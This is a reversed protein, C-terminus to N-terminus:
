MGSDQARADKATRVRLPTFSNKGLRLQAVVARDGTFFEKGEAAATEGALFDGDGDFKDGFNGHGGAAFDPMSLLYKLYCNM